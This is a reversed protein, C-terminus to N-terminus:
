TSKGLLTRKILRPLYHAMFAAWSSFHVPMPRHVPHFYRRGGPRILEALIDLPDIERKTASLTVLNSPAPEGPWTVPLDPLDVPEFGHARAWAPLKYELFGPVTDAVKAYADLFNRHMLSALFQCAEFPGNYNQAQMHAIFRAYDTSEPSDARTWWWRTALGDLSRLGPLYIQCPGVADFLPSLPACALFDWQAVFIQDWALSHGRRAHWRALMRDGHRWKWDADQDDDYHWVDDLRAEINAFATANHRAGGYLGFIPLGPNHRALQAVRTRCVEPDRYYWFLIARRM